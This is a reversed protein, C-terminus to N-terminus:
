KEITGKEKSKKRAAKEAAKEAKEAAKEMAKDAKQTEKSSLNDSPTLQDIMREMIQKKFYVDVGLMAIFYFQKLTDKDIDPTSASLEEAQTLNDLIDAKLEDMREQSWSRMTDYLTQLNFENDTHFLKDSIPRLLTGIDNIPLISKFYYIFLLLLMHDKTYKKKDPSPFLNDKAYNNIMTKTLTKDTPNRKSGSLYTDMFTTVQDMYLGINPIENSDVFASFDDIKGLMQLLEDNM